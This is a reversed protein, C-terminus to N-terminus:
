VRKEQWKYFFLTFHVTINPLIHENSKYFTHTFLQMNCVKDTFTNIIFFIAM